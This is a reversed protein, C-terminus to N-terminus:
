KQGAAQADGTMAALPWLSRRHTKSSTNCARGNRGTTISRPAPDGAFSHSIRCSHAHLTIHNPTTHHVACTTSTTAASSPTIGCVLSARAWLLAAPQGMTTARVLHSTGMTLEAVGAGCSMCWLLLRTNKSHKSLSFLLFPTQYGKDLHHMSHCVKGSAQVM